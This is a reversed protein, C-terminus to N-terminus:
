PPVQGYYRCAENPCTGSKTLQAGCRSCFRVAASEAAKVASRKRRAPTKAAKKKRLKTPTKKKAKKKTTKKTAM